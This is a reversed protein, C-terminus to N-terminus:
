SVGQYCLSVLKVYYANHTLRQRDARSGGWPRSRRPRNSYSCDWVCSRPGQKKLTDRM